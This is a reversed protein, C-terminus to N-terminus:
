VVSKRDRVDRDPYIWEPFHGPADPDNGERLYQRILPLTDRRYLYLAFIAIDSQPNEPKEVLSTVRRNEDLTAIAFRKREDTLGIHSGLLLDRGHGRFDAVFDTLPFTFFNDSAAVLLDDDIKMEDLAFAVDGIAGLRTENSDTGDDLVRLRKGPYRKEASLAWREFQGVFRHNSVICIEDIEPIGAIEDVLYDMMARGGIPLLAKPRDKTLPYLRMAYGAALVIAKM